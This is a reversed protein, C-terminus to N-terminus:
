EKADVGRSIRPTVAVLLTKLAGDSSPTCYLFPSQHSKSLLKEQNTTPAGAGGVTVQSSM